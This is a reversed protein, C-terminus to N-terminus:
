SNKRRLFYFPLGLGMSLLALSSPEPVQTLSLDDFYVSTANADLVLTYVALSETGTPATATGTDLAIWTGTSSSSTIQSSALANGPSTQVTGLNNGTGDPGDFFTIQLFGASAGTLASSTFGYGTLDYELGPASSLTEYSGPVTYGGPGSDLLSYSGSRAEADSFAAGNFPTWGGIGDTVSTDSEFGPDTLLNQAQVTASEFALAVFLCVGYGTLSKITKM